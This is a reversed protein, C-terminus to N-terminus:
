SGSFRTGPLLPVSSTKPCKDKSSDARKELSFHRLKTEGPRPHQTLTCDPGKNNEVCNSVTGEPECGSLGKM